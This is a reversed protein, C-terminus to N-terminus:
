SLLTFSSLINEFRNLKCQKIAHSKQNRIEQLAVLSVSSIVIEIVDHESTFFPSYLNALLRTKKGLCCVM